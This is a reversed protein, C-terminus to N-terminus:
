QHVMIYFAVVVGACVEVVTVKVAEDHKEEM